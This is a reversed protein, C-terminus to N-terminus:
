IPKGTKQAIGEEASCWDLRVTRTIERGSGWDAATFYSERLNMLAYTCLHARMFLGCSLWLGFTRM